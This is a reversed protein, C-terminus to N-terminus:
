NVWGGWANVCERMWEILLHRNGPYRCDQTSGYICNDCSHITDHLSDHQDAWPAQAWFAKTMNCASLGLRFTSISSRCGLSISVGSASAAFHVLINAAPIAHQCTTHQWPELCHMCDAHLAKPLFLHCATCCLSHSFSPMSVWWFWPHSTMYWMELFNKGGSLKQIFSLLSPSQAAQFMPSRM